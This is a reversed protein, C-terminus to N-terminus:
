SPYIQLYPNLSMVDPVSVKFTETSSAQSLELAQRKSDLKFCFKHTM